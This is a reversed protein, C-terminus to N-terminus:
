RQERERQRADLRAKMDLLFLGNEVGTRRRWPEGSEHCGLAESAGQAADTMARAALACATRIARSRRVQEHLSDLASGAVGSAKAAKLRASADEAAVEADYYQWGLACAQQVQVENMLRLHALAADTGMGFKLAKALATFAEVAQLMTDPRGEDGAREDAMADALDSRPALEGALALTPKARREVPFRVVDDTGPLLDLRMMCERLKAVAICRIARSM